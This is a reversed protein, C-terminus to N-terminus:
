RLQTDRGFSVRCLKPCSKLTVGHRYLTCKVPVQWFGAARRCSLGCKLRCSKGGISMGDSATASEGLRGSLREMSYQLNKNLTRQNVAEFTLVAIFVAVVTVVIAQAYACSSATCAWGRKRDVYMENLKEDM